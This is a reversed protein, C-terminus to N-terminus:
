SMCTYLGPRLFATLSPIRSTLLTPLLLPQLPGLLRAQVGPWPAPCQQVCAMLATPEKQGSVEARWNNMSHDTLAWFAAHKTHHLSLPCYVTSQGGSAELNAFLCQCGWAQRGKSFKVLFTKKEKKEIQLLVFKPSINVIVDHPISASISDLSKPISMLM